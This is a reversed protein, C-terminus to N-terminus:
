AVYEYFNKNSEQRKIFDREILQGICMKIMSIDPNFIPELNEIIQSILSNHELLKHTKMLRIIVAEVQFTRDEEAVKQQSQSPLVQIKIRFAPHSFNVNIEYTDDDLCLKKLPNKILIQTKSMCLPLIHLGLEESPVCVERSLESFNWMPKENFLMLIAMQLSSLQFEYEKDFTAKLISVGLTIDWHLKRNPYKESYFCEFDSLQSRLRAPMQDKSDYPWSALTLVRPSADKCQNSLLMENSVIIDQIMSEMKFVYSSGCITKFNTVVLMELEFNPSRLSLLRKSLLETYCSNFYDKEPYLKFLVLADDISKELKGSIIENLYANIAVCSNEQASLKKSFIKFLKSDILVDNRCSKLIVASIKHLDLIQECYRLLCEKRTNPIELQLFHDFKSILVDSFKLQLETSYTAFTYIVSIKNANDDSIIFDLKTSMNSILNTGLEVILLKLYDQGLFKSSQSELRNLFGELSGFYEFGCKDDINKLFSTFTQTVIEKFYEFFPENNYHCLTLVEFIKALQEEDNEGNLFKLISARYLNHFNTENYMIVIQAYQNYGFNVINLLKKRNVYNKHLYLTVDHFCKLFIKAENWTDLIGEFTKSKSKFEDMKDIIITKQMEYVIDAQNNLVANWCIRYLKQFSLSSKEGNVILKFATELELFDESTVVARHARIKIPAITM